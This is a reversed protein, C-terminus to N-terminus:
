FVWLRVKLLYKVGEEDVTGGGSAYKLTTLLAPLEDTDIYGSKDLDFDDFIQRVM